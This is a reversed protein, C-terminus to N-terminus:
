MCQLLPPPAYIMKHRTSPHSITRTEAATLFTFASEPTGTTIKHSNLTISKKRGLVTVAIHIVPDIKNM